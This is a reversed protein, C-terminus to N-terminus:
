RLIEASDTASRIADCGSANMQRLVATERLFQQIDPEQQALVERTLYAFLDGASGSLQSLAQPLAAGGDRQLRQWILHLAIPWGEIRNVLLTAQELTLAYDYQQRFLADIETPTFALEDQDIELVEGKVRWNLMTPLQLPYRSSLLIHLHHPALGILRDLIRMPAAADNLLHVDDLILFTSAPLIRELENILADVVAMWGSDTVSDWGELMALPADTMEPLAARFGHVLHLLFLQPDADEADLRYWVSTFPEDALATVATSKGYGTGAQLITLRHHQADLLRQTLRPRPLTYKQRRPPALKTRM